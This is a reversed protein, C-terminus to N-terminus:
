GDEEEEDTAEDTGLDLSFPADTLILDEQDLHLNCPSM